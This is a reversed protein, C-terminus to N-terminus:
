FMDNSNFRWTSKSCMIFCVVAVNLDKCTFPAAVNLRRNVVEQLVTSNWGQFRIRNQCEAGKPASTIRRFTRNFFFILYYWTCLHLNACIHTSCICLTLTTNCSSCGGRDHLKFHRGSMIRLRWWVEEPLRRPRLSLCIYAFLVRYLESTETRRGVAAAKVCTRECECVCM